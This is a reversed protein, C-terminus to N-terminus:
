TWRLQKVRNNEMQDVVVNGIDKRVRSSSATKEEQPNTLDMEAAMNTKNKVETIGKIVRGKRMRNSSSSNGEQKNMMDVEAAEGRNHEVEAAAENVM